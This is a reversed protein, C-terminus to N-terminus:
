GPEPAALAFGYLAAPNDVLIQHLLEPPVWRALLETLDGDNPMPISWAAKVHPWDTGWVLREPAAEILAAAFPDVDAFPLTHSSIRYPGSLKAWARGEKMLRLLAQFGQTAVGATAPVYGLHGFVVDVPFGAFLRDLDPFENVHALLEMHWGLPRVREAIERLKHIPVEGKGDRRDVVNVRVGRVGAAHLAELERDAVDDPVVAIGRFNAGGARLAGILVRNDAAYFSPQVLVARDVGLVALLRRYEPLLCDTPTYIRKEDYPYDAAPGCIHAHCDCAQRPLVLKPKRPQPDPAACVPIDITMETRSNVNGAAEGEARNGAM